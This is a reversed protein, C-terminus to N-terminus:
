KRETKAILSENWEVVWNCKRDSPKSGKTEIEIGGENKKEDLCSQPTVAFPNEFTRSITLPLHYCVLFLRRILEEGHTDRPLSTNMGENENGNEELDM